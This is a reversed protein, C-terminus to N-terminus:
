KHYNNAIEHNKDMFFFAIAIWTLINGLNERLYICNYLYDVEILIKGFVLTFLASIMFLLMIIMSHSHKEICKYFKTNQVCGSYCIALAMSFLSMFISTAYRIDNSGIFSRSFVLGYSIFIIPIVYKEIIKDRKIRKLQRKEKEPDTQIKDSKIQFNEINIDKYELNDVSNVHTDKCIREEVTVIYTKKM